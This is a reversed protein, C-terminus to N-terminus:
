AVAGQREAGEAWAFARGWSGHVLNIVEAVNPEPVEDEAGLEHPDYHFVYIRSAFQAFPLSSEGMLEGRDCTSTIVGQGWNQGKDHNPNFFYVRMQGRPDEEIRQISIAHWDLWAGQTNTIAVGAPQPMLLQRGGNYLPHYAAFFRRYFAQPATIAGTDENIMAAFGRHVWWGHFEPNVWKHEDESRGLARRSMEWYVRDLHPTLLLSVTDLETHLEDAVGREVDISEIPAGEFYMVVNGDRAAQVILHLLYGPDTQAWLSIARASQCTPNHGQDVGRPLGLVNLIGATLVSSASPPEPHPVGALLEDGIDARIDVDLLTRLGPLVPSHFLVGRDLLQALGYVCQATAPHVAREILEDILEPFSQLTCRGVDEVGLARGLLRRSEDKAYRVLSAHHPCVLGTRRMSTAMTDAELLCAPDDLTHLADAYEALNECARSLPTPGHLADALLAAERAVESAGWAAIGLAATDIMRRVREIKIPRTLLVREAENVLRAMIGDAGLSDVIFGFLRQVPAPPVEEEPEADAPFLSHLNLALVRELFRRAEEPAVRPHDAVGNAIALFRLQSLCEVGIGEDSQLTFEVLGAQLRSPQQWDSGIFVGSEDFSPALPYLQAAGEDTLLAEYALAYARQQLAFTDEDAAQRLQELLAAMEAGYDVTLPPPPHSQSSSDTM